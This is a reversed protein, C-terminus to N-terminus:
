DYLGTGDRYGNIQGWGIFWSKFGLARDPWGQGAAYDEFQRRMHPVMAKLTTGSVWCVVKFPCYMGAYPNSTAGNTLEAWAYVTTMGANDNFTGSAGSLNKALTGITWNEDSTMDSILKISSTYYYFEEWMLQFEDGLQILSIKGTNPTTGITWTTRKKTGNYASAAPCNRDKIYYMKVTLAGASSLNFVLDMSERTVYPYAETSDSIINVNATDIQAHYTWSTPRANSTNYNSWNVEQLTFNWIHAKVEDPYNATNFRCQIMACPDSIHMVGDADKFKYAAIQRAESATLYWDEDYQWWLDNDSLTGISVNSTYWYHLKSFPRDVAAGGGTQIVTEEKATGGAGWANPMVLRCKRPLYKGQAFELDYMSAETAQMIDTRTIADNLDGTAVYNDFKALLETKNSAVTNTTELLSARLTAIDDASGFGQQNVWTKTESIASSKADNAKTTADDAAASIAASQANNAKTTADAAATSIADSKAADTVADIYETTYDPNPTWDTAVNGTEFKLNKIECFCTSNQTGYSVFINAIDSTISTEIHTFTVPIGTELKQYTQSIITKGTTGDTKRLRLNVGGKDVMSDSTTWSAIDCSFVGSSPFAFLLGGSKGFTNYVNLMTGSISYNSDDYTINAKGQIAGWDFYNRGGVNYDSAKIWDTGSYIYSAKNADDADIWIDNTQMGTTPASNQYFTTTKGDIKDIVTDPIGSFATWASGTWRWCLQYKATNNSDTCYWIDGAHKAYDSTPWGTSPDVAQSYTSIMGDIDAELDTILNDAYAKAAAEAANAKSSADYSLNYGLSILPVSAVEGAAPAWDTAVSGAELKMGYIEIVDASTCDGALGFYINTNTKYSSFDHVFTFSYKQWSTDEIELTQVKTASATKYSQLRLKPAGSIVRCMCSMTYTQQYVVPVSDQAIDEPSGNAGGTIRWGKGFNEIDISTRKGNGGSASRWTSDAWKGTSTLAACTATARLLNQEGVNYGAAKVWAIGNYIYSTKNADDADIWIDNTQMGSTPAENQYFTKAYPQENVWAKTDIIANERASQAKTSADQAAASIAAAQAAAAKSAADSAATSIAESKATAIAANYDSVKIWQNNYYIYTPKGDADSDIWYDKANMGSTPASAQYFVQAKGDIKDIISDPVVSIQVWASGTWRWTKQYHTTDTSKTCYWIDGTHETKMAATTWSTSPDEDQAFTEIKGDIQSQLDTKLTDSYAKASAEAANAKTTADTAAASIADNKANNAKTTADSAATSIASSKANNAKTTADTAAASIAESKATSAKGDAYSETAYDQSEVWLETAYDAEALAENSVYGNQVYATIVAALEEDKLSALQQIKEDTPIDAKVTEIAAALTEEDVGELELENIQTQLDDSLAVVGDIRSQIDAINTDVAQMQETLEESLADADQAVALIDASLSDVSDHLEETINTTEQIIEQIQEAQASVNEAIEAAQENIRQIEEDSRDIQKQTSNTVRVISETLTNRTETISNDLKNIENSATINTLQNNNVAQIIIANTRGVASSIGDTLVNTLKEQADGLTISNYCGELMNWDLGIVRSIYQMPTDGPVESITADILDDIGNHMLGLDATSTGWYKPWCVRVYAASNPCIYSSEVHNAQEDSKNVVITWNDDIVVKNEDYWLVRIKDGLRLASPEGYFHYDMNPVTPMYDTWYGGNYDAPYMDGIVTATDGLTIVDANDIGIEPDMNQIKIELNRLARHAQNENMYAKCYNIVSSHNPQWTKMKEQDKQAKDLISQAQSQWDKNQNQSYTMIYIQNTWGAEDYPGATESYTVDDIEYTVYAWTPVNSTEEEDSNKKTTKEKGAEKSKSKADNYADLRASIRTLEDSYKKVDANAADIKDQYNKNALDYEPAFHETVDLICLRRRLPDNPDYWDSYVVGDAPIGQSPKNGFWHCTGNGDTYYPVIGGFINTGDTEDTLDSLNKAYRITMGRDQGLRSLLRITYNDFLLEGGYTAVLSTDEDGNLAKRYTIPASQFRWYKDNNTEEWHGSYARTEELMWLRAEVGIGSIQIVVYPYSGDGVIEDTTYRQWSLTTDFSNLVTTRVPETSDEKEFYLAKITATEGGKLDISLTWSNNGWLKTRGLCPEPCATTVELVSSNNIHFANAHYYRDFAEETLPVRSNHLHNGYHATVDLTFPNVGKANDTIWKSAAQLSTCEVFSTYQKIDPDDEKMMTQDPCCVIGDTAYSVHVCDVVITKKDLSYSTNRIEFLQLDGTCDHEALIKNGVVLNQFLFSDEVPYEMSFEYSDNISSVTSTSIANSLAGYGLAYSATESNYIDSIANVSAPYLIPYSAM